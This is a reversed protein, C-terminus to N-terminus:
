WGFESAHRSTNSNKLELHLVLLIYMERFAMAFAEVHLQGTVTLIFAEKEFFDKSFDTDDITTVRFMEGAGEGDNSTIIPTHVYVFGQDQFFEHIAM